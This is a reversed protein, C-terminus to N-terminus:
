NLTIVTSYILASEFYVNLDYQGKKMGSFDTGMGTDEGQFNTDMMGITSRAVEGTTSNIFEVYYPGVTTKKVGTFDIEIADSSTFTDTAITPNNASPPMGPKMKSVTVGSFYKSYDPLSGCSNKICLLGTQCDKYNQCSNGLKGETCVGKVCFQSKCDSKQQCVSGVKGSSCTKSICTLGADCRSSNQCVGGEPIKKVFFYWYSAGGIAVILVVIIIWIAKSM